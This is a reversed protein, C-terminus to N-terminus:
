CNMYKISVQSTVSVKLPNIKPNFARFSVKKSKWVVKRSKWVLNERKKPKIEFCSFQIYFSALEPQVPNQECHTFQNKKQAHVLLEYFCIDSVLVIAFLFIHKALVEVVQQLWDCKLALGNTIGVNIKVKFFLPQMEFNSPLNTFFLGQAIRLKLQLEVVM